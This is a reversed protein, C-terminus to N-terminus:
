INWWHLGDKVLLDESEKPGMLGSEYDPS